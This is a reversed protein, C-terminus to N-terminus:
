LVLWPRCPHACSVTKLPLDCSLCKYWLRQWAWRSFYPCCYDGSLFLQSWWYAKSKLCSQPWTLGPWDAFWTQTVVEPNKKSQTWMTQLDWFFFFNPRLLTYPNFSSISGAQLTWYMHDTSCFAGFYCCPTMQKCNLRLLPLLTRHPLLDSPRTVFFRGM